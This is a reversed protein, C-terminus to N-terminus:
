ADNMWDNELDGRIRLAEERGPYNETGYRRLNRDAIRAHICRSCNRQPDHGCPIKFTM